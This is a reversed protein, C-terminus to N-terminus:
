LRRTWLSCYSRSDPFDNCLLSRSQERQKATLDEGTNFEAPKGAARTVHIVNFEANRGKSRPTKRILKHVKGFWM